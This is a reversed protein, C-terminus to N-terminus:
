AMAAKAQAQAEEAAARAQKAADEAAAQAQKAAEEAAEQAQNMADTAAAQANKFAESNQVQKMVEALRALIKDIEEATRQQVEEARAKAEEYFKESEDGKPAGTWNQTSMAMDACSGGQAKMCEKVETCEDEKADIQAKLAALRAETDALEASLQNKTNMVQGFQHSLSDTSGRFLFAKALVQAIPLPSFSDFAAAVALIKNQVGVMNLCVESLWFFVTMLNMFFFLLTLIISLKVLLATTKADCYDPEDKLSDAFAVVGPVFLYKAYLYLNWIATLMWLATGAGVFHGLISTRTKKEQVVAYQLTTMHCSILEQLDALPNAGTQARKEAEALRDRMESSRQQIEKKAGMIQFILGIRSLLIVLALALVTRAWARLGWIPSCDHDRDVYEAYISLSLVPVMALVICLIHCVMSITLNVPVMVGALLVTVPPMNAAVAADVDLLLMLEQMDLAKALSGATDTLENKVLTKAKAAFGFAKNHLLSAIQAGKTIKPGVLQSGRQLVKKVLEEYDELSTGEDEAETATAKVECEAEVTQVTAACETMVAHANATATATVSDQSKELLPEAAEVDAESVDEKVGFHSGPTENWMWVLAGVLLCSLFVGLIELLIKKTPDLEYKSLLRINEAFGILSFPAEGVALPLTEQIASGTKKHVPAAWFSTAESKFGSALEAGYLLGFLM